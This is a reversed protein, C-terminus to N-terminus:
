DIGSNPPMPIYVCVHSIGCMWVLDGCPNIDFAGRKQCFHTLLLTNALAFLFAFHLVLFLFFVVIPSSLWYAFTQVLHRWPSHIEWSYKRSTNRLKIEWTCCTDRAHHTRSFEGLRHFDLIKSSCGFIQMLLFRSLHFFFDAAILLFIKKFPHCVHM